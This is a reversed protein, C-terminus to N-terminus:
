SWDKKRILKIFLLELEHQHWSDWIEQEYGQAQNTEEEKVRKLKDSVTSYPSKWEQQFYWIHNSIVKISM